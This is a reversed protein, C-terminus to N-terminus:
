LQAWPEQDFKPLFCTSFTNYYILSNHTFVGFLLAVLQRSRNCLSIYVHQALPFIKIINFYQLVRKQKFGKQPSYFKFFEVTCHVFQYFLLFPFTHDLCSFSITKYYQEYYSVTTPFISCGPKKVLSQLDDDLMLYQVVRFGYNAFKGKLFKNTIWFNFMTTFLNLFECMVFSAFYKEHTGM